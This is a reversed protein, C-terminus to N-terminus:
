AFQCTLDQLAATAEQIETPLDPTVRLHPAALALHWLREDLLAWVATQHVLEPINGDDGFPAGACRGPLSSSNVPMQALAEGLPRIVTTMLCFSARALRELDTGTEETHTFYRRLMLLMTDYAGNFLEAVAATLPDVIHTGSATEGPLQTGPNVVM